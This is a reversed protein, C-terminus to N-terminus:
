PAGGTAAQLRAILANVGEVYEDLEMGCVECRARDWRWYHRNEGHKDECKSVAQLAALADPLLRANNHDACKEVHALAREATDIWSQIPEWRGGPLVDLLQQVFSMVEDDYRGDNYAYQGRGDALWARGRILNTLRETLFMDQKQRREYANLYVLLKDVDGGLPVRHGEPSAIWDKTTEGPIRRWERGTEGDANTM